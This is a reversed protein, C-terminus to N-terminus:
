RRVGATQLLAHLLVDAGAVAWEPRVDEAENHSIGGVCPCMIMAAPAVRSVYCADHGGGTVIDRHAHGLAAAATRVASVCGRDFEVPEFEVITEIELRLGLQRCIQDSRDRLEADMAALTGADPSRLDATLVAQGAIVNRSNPHLRCHGVSAVANGARKGAIRSTADIIRAMGLGADARMHMPTTGTHAARGSLTLQLWRVGQGHTVVGIDMKEAELIPGQEIHLEYYAGIRRKGCSESGDWGIRALEDAFRRGGSDRRDHAWGKDHVGAFVGSALMPPAFRSGEENSWNIVGIPRETCIAHEGITRVAELAALVGLVGDYRGGTPQTDNHSGAYVADAADAGAALAFMNGMDDVSVELGADELWDALLRRGQGDEDTLAQRNCGGAVGPGVQAMEALSRWLRDGDVRPGADMKLRASAAAAAHGAEGQELGLRRGPRCDGKCM